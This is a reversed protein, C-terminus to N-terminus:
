PFFIAGPIAITHLWSIWCKSLQTMIDEMFGIYKTWCAVNDLM